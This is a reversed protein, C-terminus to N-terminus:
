NENKWVGILMRGFGSNRFHDAAIPQLWYKRILEVRDLHAPWNFFLTSGAPALKRIPRPQQSAARDWGSIVKEKGIAAAIPQQREILPWRAERVAPTLLYCFFGDSPAAANEVALRLNQLPQSTEVFQILARGRDGGLFALQNAPIKQPPIPERTKYFATLGASRWEGSEAHARSSFRRYPRSFLLGRRPRNADNDMGLGLRTESKYINELPLRENELLLKNSLDVGCLINQLLNASLYDDLEAEDDDREFFLYNEFDQLSSAALGPKQPKIRMRKGAVVPQNAYRQRLRVHLPRPFWFEDQANKYFFGMLEARETSGNKIDTIFDGLYKKAEATWKKQDIEAGFAGALCAGIAGYITHPSPDQDRILHDEGARASRNDSFLIPEIPMLNVQYITEM